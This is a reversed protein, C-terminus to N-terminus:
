SFLQLSEVRIVCNVITTGEWGVSVSSTHGRRGRHGDVKGVLFHDDETGLIGTLHLLSDEGNEEVLHRYLV